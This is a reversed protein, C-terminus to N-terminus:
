GGGSEGGKTHGQREPDTFLQKLFAQDLGLELLESSGSVAGLLKEKRLVMQTVRGACEVRRRKLLRHHEGHVADPFPGGRRYRVALTPIEFNKLFDMEGM